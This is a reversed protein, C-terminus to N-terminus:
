LAQAHRHEISQPAARLEAVERREEQRQTETNQSADTGALRAPEVEGCPEEAARGQATGYGPREVTGRERRRENGHLDDGTKEQEGGGALSLTSGSEPCSSRM